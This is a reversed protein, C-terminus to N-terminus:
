SAAEFFVQGSSLDKGAKAFHFRLRSRARDYRLTLEIDQGAMIIRHFKLASIQQFAGDIMFQRRAFTIAWDVQVVGSLVPQQDFHGDFYLLDDPPRLKLTLTDDGAESELVQPEIPRHAKPEWLAELASLTTKGRADEPIRRLFRWKRPLALASVHPRLAACLHERMQRRGTELLRSWGAPSPKIVAVLTDRRDGDPHWPMVRAQSVEPLATLRRELDSLSVRQQEIKVVRDARGNLVFRNKALLHAKDGTRVPNQDPLNPSQVALVGTEDDLSLEVGPFATWPETNDASL